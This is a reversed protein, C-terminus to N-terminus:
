CLVSFFLSLNKIKVGRQAIRPVLQIPVLNISTITFAKETRFVLREFFM